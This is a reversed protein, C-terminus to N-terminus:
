MKKKKKNNKILFMANSPSELLSNKGQGHLQM